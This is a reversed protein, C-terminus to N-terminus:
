LNSTNRTLKLKRFNLQRLVTLCAIGLKLGVTIKVEFINKKLFLIFQSNNIRSKTLCPTVDLADLPVIKRAAIGQGKVIFGSWESLYQIFNGKCISGRFVTVKLKNLMYIKLPICDLKNDNRKHSTQTPTSTSAARGFPRLVLINHPSNRHRFYIAWKKHLISCCIDSYKRCSDVSLYSPKPASIYMLLTLCYIESLGM